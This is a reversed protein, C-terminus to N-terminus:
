RGGHPPAQAPVHWYDPARWPQDSAPSAPREVVLTPATAAVLAPALDCFGQAALTVACAHDRQDADPHVAAHARPSVALLGLAFISLALWVGVFRRFAPLRPRAQDSVKSEPNPRSM